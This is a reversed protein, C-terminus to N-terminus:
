PLQIFSIEVQSFQSLFQNQSAYRDGQYTSDQSLLNDLQSHLDPQILINSFIETKYFYKVLVQILVSDQSLDGQSLGLGQSLGSQSLGQTLLPGQSYGQM